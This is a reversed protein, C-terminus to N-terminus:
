KLRNVLFGNMFISGSTSFHSSTEPNCVFIRWRRPVKQDQSCSTYLQECKAKQNHSVMAATKGSSMLCLSLLSQAKPKTIRLVQFSYIQAQMSPTLTIRLHSEYISGPCLTVNRLGNVDASVSAICASNMSYVSDWHKVNWKCALCVLNKWSKRKPTDKSM